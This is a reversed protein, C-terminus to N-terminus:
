PAPTQVPESPPVSPTPTSPARTQPKPNHRCQYPERHDDVTNVKAVRRMRAMSRIPVFNSAFGYAAWARCPSDSAHGLLAAPNHQIAMHTARPDIYSEGSGSGLRAPKNPPCWTRLHNGALCRRGCARPAVGPGTRLFAQLVSALARRM